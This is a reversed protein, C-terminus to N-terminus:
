EEWLMAVAIRLTTGQGASLEHSALRGEIPKHGAAHLACKGYEFFVCGSETERPRVVRIPKGDCLVTRDEVMLDPYQESLVAAEAPSPFCAIRECMSRCRSCGCSSQAVSFKAGLARLNERVQRLANV